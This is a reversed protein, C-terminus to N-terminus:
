DNNIEYEDLLKQFESAQLIGNSSDINKVFEGNRIYVIAPVMKINSGLVENLDKLDGNTYDIFIFNDRLDNKNIIKKLNSEFKYADPDNTKTVLIFLESSPETLVNRVEDLKIQNIFGDMYSKDLKKNQYKNNIEFIMFTLIVVVVFMLFLYFYNKKPVVKNKKM